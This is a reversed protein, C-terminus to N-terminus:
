DFIAQLSKSSTIIAKDNDTLGKINCITKKISDKDFIWNKNKNIKHLTYQKLIIINKLIDWNNYGNLKLIDKLKELLVLDKHKKIYNKINNITEKKSLDIYSKNEKGELAEIFTNLMYLSNDFHVLKHCTKCLPTIPENKNFTITEVARSGNLFWNEHAESSEEKKCLSCTKDSCYIRSIKNWIDYPYDLVKWYVNTCEKREKNESTRSFRKHKISAPMLCFMILNAKDKNKDAWSKIDRQNYLTSIRNNFEDQTEGHQKCFYLEAYGKQIELLQKLLKKNRIKQIM